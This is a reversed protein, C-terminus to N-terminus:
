SLVSIPPRWDKWRRLRRSLPQDEISSQNKDGPSGYSHPLSGSSIEELSSCRPQSPIFSMFPICGQFCTLENRLHWFLCSGMGDVDCATLSILASVLVTNLHFVDSNVAPKREAFMGPAATGGPTNWRPAVHQLFFVGVAGQWGNM